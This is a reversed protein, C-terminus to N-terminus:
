DVAPLNNEKLFSILENRNKGYKEPQILVANMWNCNLSNNENKQFLVGDCNSLYKRYL